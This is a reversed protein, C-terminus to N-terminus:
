GSVSVNLPQPVNRKRSARAAKRQFRLIVDGVQVRDGDELVCSDPVSTGNVQTQQATARNYLVFQDRERCILAHRKEIKMDRFLAIDAAEDRGLQSTAKDLPYERGEQWGRLVRVSAPEFVSQVLASLAGICAGLIILGVAGALAAWGDLSIAVPLMKAPGEEIAWMYILAFLGGGVLGGLAGGLTGYSLKGLSRAAIGESLGIALGLVMWGLGRALMAVLLRRGGLRELLIFNIHDGLWLGLAGGAAGIILGYSALRCFRVLAQDRLAEVGVVFYGISGGILAGGGLWQTLEESGPNAFVGFLLWGLLGGLGGFVANFYIRALLAM